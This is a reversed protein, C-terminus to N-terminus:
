PTPVGGALIGNILSLLGSVVGGVGSNIASTLTCLLTGLLGQAGANVNTQQLDVAVIQGAVDVNIPALDVKLVSCNNGGGNGSIAVDTTFTQNIPQGVAKITGTLTGSATLGGVANLALQTIVADGHFKVDGLLPIPTSTVNDLVLGTGAPPAARQALPTADPSISAPSTPAADHCALLSVTTGLLLLHRRTM